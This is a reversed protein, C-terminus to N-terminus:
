DVSIGVEKELRAITQARREAKDAKPPPNDMWDFLSRIEGRPCKGYTYCGCYRSSHFVRQGLWHHAAEAGGGGNAIFGIIVGPIYTVFILVIAPIVLLAFVIRRVPMPTSM